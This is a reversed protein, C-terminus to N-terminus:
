TKYERGGQNPSGPIGPFGPIGFRKFFEQLNEDYPMNPFHMGSRRTVQTISINVVAPGQQEALVTFDPLNAAYAGAM